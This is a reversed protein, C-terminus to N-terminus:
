IEVAPRRAGTRPGPPRGGESRQDPAPRRFLEQLEQRDVQGNQDRDLRNFFEEVAPPLPESGGPRPGRGSGRGPPPGQANRPGFGGFGGLPGFGGRPGPGGPGRFEGRRGPEDREVSQRGDPGRREREPREEQRREGGREPMGSLAIENPSWARNGDVDYRGLVRPADGLEAVSIEGDHNQDILGFLGPELRRQREAPAPGDRRADQDPRQVANHWRNQFQESFSAMGSDFEARTLERDQNADGAAVLRRYLQRREAPIESRELVGNQNVDLRGFISDLLPRPRQRRRADTEADREQGGTPAADPAPPADPSSPPAQAAATLTAWSALLMGFCAIRIKM